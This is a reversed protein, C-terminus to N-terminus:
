IILITLVIVIIIVCMSEIMLVNLYYDCIEYFLIYNVSVIM